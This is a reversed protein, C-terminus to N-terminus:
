KLAALDDAGHLPVEMAPTTGTSALLSFYLAPASAAPRGHSETLRQEFHKWGERALQARSLRVVERQDGFRTTLLITDM